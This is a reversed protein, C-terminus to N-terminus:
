TQCSLFTVPINLGSEDQIEEELTNNTRIVNVALGSVERDKFSYTHALIGSVSVPYWLPLM